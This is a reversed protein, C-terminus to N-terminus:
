IFDTSVEDVSGGCKNGKVMEKVRSVDVGFFTKRFGRQILATEGMAQLSGDLVETLKKLLKPPPQEGKPTSVLQPLITKILQPATNPSYPAITLEQDM